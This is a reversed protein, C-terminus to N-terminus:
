EHEIILHFSEDDCIPCYVWREWADGTDIVEIRECEARCWICYCPTNDQAAKARADYIDM